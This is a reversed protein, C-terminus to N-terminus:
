LLFEPPLPAFDQITNMVQQKKRFLFELLHNYATDGHLTQECQYSVCTFLLGPLHLSSSCCLALTHTLPPTPARLHHVCCVACYKYVVSQAEIHCLEFKGSDFKWCLLSSLLRRPRELASQLKSPYTPSMKSCPKREMYSEKRNVKLVSPVFPLSVSEQAPPPLKSLFHEPLPFPPLTLSHLKSTRFKSFM